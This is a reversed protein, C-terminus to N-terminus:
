EVNYKKMDKEFNERMEARLDKNLLIDIATMALTKATALTPAQAEPAGSIELVTNLPSAICFM